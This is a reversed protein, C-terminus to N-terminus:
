LTKGKKRPRKRIPREYYKKKIDDPLTSYAKSIFTKFDSLLPYRPNWHYLRNRGEITSVLIGQNELRTLARQIGFIPIGFNQRLENAFCKDNATMYFLIKEILRSNFLQEFM